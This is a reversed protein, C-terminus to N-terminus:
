RRRRRSRLGLSTRTRALMDQIIAERDEEEDSDSITIVEIPRPQSVLPRAAHNLVEGNSQTQVSADVVLEMPDIPRTVNPPRFLHVRQPIPLAIPAPPAAQPVVPRATRNVFEDDFRGVNPPRIVFRQLIPVAVPVPPAVRPVVPRAAQDVFEEESRGVPAIPELANTHRAVNLPYVRIRRSM